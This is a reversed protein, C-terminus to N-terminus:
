PTFTAVSIIRAPDILFASTTPESRIEKAMSQCFRSDHKRNPSPAPATKSSVESSFAPRTEECM